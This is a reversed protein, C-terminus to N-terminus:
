GSRPELSSASGNKKTVRPRSDYLCGESHPGLTHDTGQHPGCNALDYSVRKSKQGRQNYYPSGTFSRERDGGKTRLPNQRKPQTNAEKEREGAIKKEGHADLRGRGPGRKM